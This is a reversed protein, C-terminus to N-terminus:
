PCNFNTTKQVLDSITDAIGKFKFLNFYNTHKLMIELIWFLFKAM